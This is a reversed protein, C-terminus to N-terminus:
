AFPHNGYRNVKKIRINGENVVCVRGDPFQCKRYCRNDDSVITAGFVSVAVGRVTCHHHLDWNTYGWVCVVSAEPERYDLKDLPIYQLHPLQTTAKIM